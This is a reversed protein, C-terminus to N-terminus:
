RKSVRYRLITLYKQPNGFGFIGPGRIYEEEFSGLIYYDQATIYNRLQQITNQESAYPGIYLIQAVTGYKWEDITLLLNDPNEIYPISDIGEPLPIAFRNVWLDKPIGELVPMRALRPHIKTGAPTIGMAKYTKLLFKIAKNGVVLPDGTIEVVLMKQDPLTTISPYLLNSYQGTGPFLFKVFFYAAVVLTVFIILNLISKTM